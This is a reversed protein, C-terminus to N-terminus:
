VRANRRVDGDRIVSMVMSGIEEVLKEYAWALRRYQDPYSTPVSGDADIPVQGSVFLLRRVGTVM